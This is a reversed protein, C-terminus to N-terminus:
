LSNGFCVQGTTVYWIDSPASRKGCPNTEKMQGGALSSM